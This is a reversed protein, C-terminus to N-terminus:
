KRKSPPEGPDVLTPDPIHRLGDNLIWGLLPLLKILTRTPMDQLQDWCTSLAAERLPDPQPKPPVAVTRAKAGVLRFSSARDEASGGELRKGGARSPRDAARGRGSGGLSTKKSMARDREDCVRM